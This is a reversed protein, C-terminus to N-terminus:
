HDFLQNFILTLYQDFRTEITKENPATKADKNMAIAMDYIAKQYIDSNLVAELQQKRFKNKDIKM